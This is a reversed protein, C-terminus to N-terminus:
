NEAIEIVENVVDAFKSREYQLASLIDLNFMGCEGNIIMNYAQDPTFADKYCRKTTLADYVDALSVIQAEIPIDNGAIGNPYGRGDFKEHHSLAVNKCIKVFDEEYDDLMKDLIEYGAVTHSKMKDFEENTLKGPKLLITDSIYIKGVDHMPSADAINNVIEETIGYKPFHEKLYKAIILTYIRVRQIHTGSEMNRFEVVTGLTNIIRVNQQKLKNSQMDVMEQLNNKHYHLNIINNVRRMVIYSDFPKHIIDSVELDYAKVYTDRDEIGTILVVPIKNLLGHSKMWELVCIGNMEPMVIDLLVVSYKEPNKELMEVAEKGNKAEDVNYQEEFINELIVRNVEADDVVLINRM